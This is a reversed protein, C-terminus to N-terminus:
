PLTTAVSRATVVGGAAATRVGAAASTMVVTIMVARVVVITRVVSMLGVITSDVTREVGSDGVAKARVAM